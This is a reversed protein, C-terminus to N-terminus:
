KDRATLSMHNFVGDHDVLRHKLAGAVHLFLLVCLAVALWGHIAFIEKAFEKDAPIGPMAPLNIGFLINLAGFATVGAWGLLAIAVLLSYLLWQTTKALKRVPVSVSDPYDPATNTARLILRWIVLWLVIFGFTKHSAYLTGTLGDWINAEARDVMWFGIPLLILVLMAVIWHLWRQTASFGLTGRTDM